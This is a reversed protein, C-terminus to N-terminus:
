KLLLKIEHANTNRGAHRPFTNSGRSISNCLTTATMHISPVSDQDEPLATLSKLQQAM